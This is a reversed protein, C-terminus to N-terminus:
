VMTLSAARLVVPFSARCTVAGVTTTVSTLAVIGLVQSSATTGGLTGASANVYLATNGEVGPKLRCVPDGTTMLWGYADAAFAVQAFAVDGALKANTDSMKVAERTSAKIFCVDYQLLAVSAQAYIWRSGQNGIGIEGVAHLATTGTLEPQAGAPTHIFAM